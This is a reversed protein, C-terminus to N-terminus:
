NTQPRLRRKYLALAVALVVLTFLIPAWSPFEPIVATDGSTTDITFIVTASSWVTIGEPERQNVYYRQVTLSYTGDALNPLHSNYQAIAATFYKYKHTANTRKTTVDVTLTRRQVNRLVYRTSYKESLFEVTFNLLVTEVNYTKNQPSQVVIIDRWMMRAMGSPNAKAEEIVPLGAAVSFLLTLILTIALEIRKM